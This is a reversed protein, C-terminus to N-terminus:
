QEAVDVYPNWSPERDPVLMQMPLGCDDTPPEAPLAQLAYQGAATLVMADIIDDRGVENRYYEALANQYCSQWGDLEAALVGFRAARGATTSKPQAIPYGDNLAAFCCEPHSEVLSVPSDARLVRDVAAIKPTINWAQKSLGRGLQERNIDNAREYSAKEGAEQYYEVVARAPVPFVSSGRVGLQKRAVKDCARAESAPLGIPIDVLVRDADSHAAAAAEITAYMEADLSDKEPTTWVALWGGGCGDLGVVRGTAPSM